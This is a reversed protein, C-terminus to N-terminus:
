FPALSCRLARLANSIIFAGILGTVVALVLGGSAAYYDFGFWALVPANVLWVFLGQLPGDILWLGIRFSLPLLLDGLLMGLLVFLGALFLNANLIILTILLALYLGPTQGIGPLFGMATGLLCAAYIQFPTINGRILKGIKRTIM